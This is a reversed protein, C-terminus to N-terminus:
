GLPLYECSRNACNVKNSKKVAMQNKTEYQRMTVQFSSSNIIAEIEFSASEGNYVLNMCSDWLIQRPEREEVMLRYICNTVPHGKPSYM